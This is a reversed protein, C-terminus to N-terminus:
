RSVQRYHIISDSGGLTCLIKYDQKNLLGVSIYLLCYQLSERMERLQETTMIIDDFEQVAGLSLLSPTTPM